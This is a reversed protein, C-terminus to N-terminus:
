GKVGYFLYTLFYDFVAMLIFSWVVARTTAIGVEKAGGTTNIGITTSISSLALGFVAAKLLMAFIDKAETQYWVSSLYQELTVGALLNAVIMGGLISITTTLMTLLPLAFTGALVRPMLLYRIPNVHLVQLASVQSTIQMTSLEAAFASGAMAIVSFATMIPALERVMAMSVLAGVFQGGGMRVMQQSVQLSIVMASFTTMIMSIGMTDIGVFAVQQIFHRISFQGQLIFRFIQVIYFAAHGITELFMLFERRIAQLARWTFPFWQRPIVQLNVM